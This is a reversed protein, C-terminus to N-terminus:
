GLDRARILQEEKTLVLILSWLLLVGAMFRVSRISFKKAEENKIERGGEQDLNSLLGSRCRPQSDWDFVWM